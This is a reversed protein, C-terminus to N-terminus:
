KSTSWPWWSRPKAAVPPPLMRRVDDLHRQLMATKEREAELAAEAVALRTSIDHGVDAKQDPKSRDVQDPTSRGVTERPSYVRMLEATDIRWHGADDRSGSVKGNALHKNLTARSVAFRRTAERLSLEPM